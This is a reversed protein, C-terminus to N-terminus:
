LGAKLQREAEHWDATPDGAAYGRGAYIEYARKAIQEQTVQRAPSFPTKPKGSGKFESREIVPAPSSPAPTSPTVPFAPGGTFSKSPNTNGPKKPLPPM